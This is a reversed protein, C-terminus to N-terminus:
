LWLYRVKLIHRQEDQCQAWISRGQAFTPKNLPDSFIDQHLRFDIMLIAVKPM